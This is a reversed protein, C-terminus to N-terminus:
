GFAETHGSVNNGQIINSIYHVDAHVMDKYSPPSPFPQSSGCSSSHLSLKPSDPDEAHEGAWTARAGHIGWCVIDLYVHGARM